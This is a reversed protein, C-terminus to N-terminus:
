ELIVEGGEFGVRRFDIQKGAEDCAVAGTYEAPLSLAHMRWKPAAAEDRTDSLFTIEEADFSVSMKQLGESIGEGRAKLYAEKRTWVRFFAAVKESEPLAQFAGFDEASLIREALDNLKLKREAYEIDIGVEAEATLAVAVLDRTHTLSFRMTEDAPFYPRGRETYALAIMEPRQGLYHGLINRVLARGLVYRARDGAFRYREARERDHADLCPELFPMAKQGNSVETLWVVVHGELHERREDKM